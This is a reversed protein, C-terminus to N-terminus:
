YYLLTLIYWLFFWGISIGYDIYIYIYQVISGLAFTPAISPARALPGERALVGARYRSLMDTDAIIFSNLIRPVPGRTFKRTPFPQFIHSFFQHLHM